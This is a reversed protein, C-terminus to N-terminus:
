LGGGHFCLGRAEERCDVHSRAGLTLRRGGPRPSLRRRPRHPPAATAVTNTEIERLAGRGSDTSRVDYGNSRLAVTLVRRMVTDDEVVLVLPRTV